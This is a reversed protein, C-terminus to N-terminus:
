KAKGVRGGKNTLDMLAEIQTPTLIRLAELAKRTSCEWYTKVAELAENEVPKLWKHFGRKRARVINLLYHHQMKKDLHHRQNMENAYLLTDMDYSLAKNTLFAVYSKENEPDLAMLNRKSHQIEKVFDFPSLKESM